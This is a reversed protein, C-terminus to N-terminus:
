AGQSLCERILMVLDRNLRDKTICRRAGARLALGACEDWPTRSCGSFVCRRISKTFKGFRRIAASEPLDLDMLVVDPKHERLLRVAEGASAAVGVLEMDSQLRILTCIGDLLLENHDVVLVRNKTEEVSKIIRFLRKARFVSDLCRSVGSKLSAAPMVDRHIIQSMAASGHRHSGNRNSPNM